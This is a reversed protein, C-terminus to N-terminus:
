QETYSKKENESGEQRWGTDDETMAGEGAVIWYKLVRYYEYHVHPITTLYRTGITSYLHGISLVYLVTCLSLSSELSHVSRIIVRVLQPTYFVLFLSDLLM